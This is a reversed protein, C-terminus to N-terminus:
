LHLNFDDGYLKLLDFVLLLRLVEFLVLMRLLWLLDFPFPLPLPPLFLFVPGGGFDLGSGKKYHQVM